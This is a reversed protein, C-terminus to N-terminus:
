WWGPRRARLVALVFLLPLLDVASYKTLVGFGALAGAILFRWPSPCALAREWLVLAWIWFALAMVDCMLTSSSVLFAPTAIAILAALLPHGSWLKALSHIGLAAIFAIVFCGSHLAIESWGFLSAVGAFFYSLLPPNYNTAWMPIASVWWNVNFGFFDAPHKQIWQGTWVFLVDDTQIAENIFPILCAALVLGIVVSPHASAWTRKPEIREPQKEPQTKITM